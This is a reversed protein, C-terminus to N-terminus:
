GAKAQSDEEACHKYPNNTGKGSSGGTVGRGSKGALGTFDSTDIPSGAAYAYISNLGPGAPDDFGDLMSVGIQLAPDSIIRAVGIPDGEVYRGVAADYDRLGNYILGSEADFYQGPLIAIRREWLSCKSGRLMHCKAM